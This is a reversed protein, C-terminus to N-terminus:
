CQSRGKQDTGREQRSHCSEQTMLHSSRLLWAILLAVVGTVCAAGVVDFVLTRAPRASEDENCLTVSLM